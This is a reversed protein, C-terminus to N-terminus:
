MGEEELHIQAVAAIADPKRARLVFLVVVGILMWLGMAWGAYSLPATLKTIFTFGPVGTIGAADFFGPILFAIGLVPVVIHWLWHREEKRHRAFFGICAMNAIIYVPVVVVVIATAIVGFATQPTYKWGLVLAFLLGLILEVLVGFQPSKFRPHLSAFARPFVGIRGFAYATRTFVNAGSNANALTSNIIAFLVLAWFVVSVSRALGDWPVGNAYSAFTAFKAPGYAVTAAYTTFVYVLGIGATALLVALPV